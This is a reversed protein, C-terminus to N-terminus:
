WARGLSGSLTFLVTIIKIVASAASHGRLERHYFKKRRLKRLKGRFGRPWSRQFVLGKTIKTDNHRQPSIKKKTTAIVGGIIEPLGREICSKCCFNLFALNSGGTKLFSYFFMNFCGTLEYGRKKPHSWHLTKAKRVLWAKHLYLACPEVSHYEM